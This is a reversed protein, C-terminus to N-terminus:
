NVAYGFLVIGAVQLCVLLIIALSLRKQWRAQRAQVEILNALVVRIPAADEAVTQQSLFQRVLRPM